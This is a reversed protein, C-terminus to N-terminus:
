GDYERVLMATANVARAAIDELVELVLVYLPLAPVGVAPSRNIQPTTVVPLAVTPVIAPVHVHFLKVLWVNLEAVSLICTNQADAVAAVDVVGAYVVADPLQVAQEM